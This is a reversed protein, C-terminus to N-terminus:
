TPEKEPPLPSTTRQVAEKHADRLASDFSTSVMLEIVEPPLYGEYSISDGQKTIVRYQVVRDAEPYKELMAKVGRPWSM